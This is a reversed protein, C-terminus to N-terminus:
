ATASMLRKTFAHVAIDFMRTVHQQGLAATPM